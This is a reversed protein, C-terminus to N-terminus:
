FLASFVTGKTATKEGVYAAMITQTQSALEQEAKAIAQNAEAAVHRDQASPDAPANAAAAIVRMKQITGSPDSPDTSMDLSVEGAVAYREGDPGTQYDFKAGSTAFRGAAALHAQEHARVKRDTSALKQILALQDANLQSGAATLASIAGSV